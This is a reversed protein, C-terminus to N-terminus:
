SEIFNQREFMERLTSHIWYSETNQFCKSSGIQTAAQEVNSASFEPNLELFDPSSASWLCNEKEHVANVPKGGLIIKYKDNTSDWPDRCFGAKKIGLYVLKIKLPFLLLLLFIVFTLETYFDWM